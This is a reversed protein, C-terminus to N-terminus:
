KKKGVYIEPDDYACGLPPRDDHGQMQLAHRLEIDEPMGFLQLYDDRGQEAKKRSDHKCAVPQCKKGPQM